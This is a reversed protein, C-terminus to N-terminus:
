RQQRRQKEKARYTKARAADHKRKRQLQPDDCGTVLRMRETTRAVHEGCQRRVPCTVCLSRNGEYPYGFCGPRHTGAPEVQPVTESQTAGRACALDIDMFLQNPLGAHTWKGNRVKRGIVARLFMDYPLGLADAIARVKWLCRLTQLGNRAYQEKVPKKHPGVEADIHQTYMERYVDIYSQNFLETRELPSLHQYGAWATAAAAPEAELADPRIWSRVWGDIAARREDQDPIGRARGLDLMRGRAEAQQKPSKERPRSTWKPAKSRAALEKRVMRALEDPCASQAWELLCQKSEPQRRRQRPRPRTDHSKTAEPTAPRTAAEVLQRGFRAEAEARPMFHGVHQRLAAAADGGAIAADAVRQHIVEYMAQHEPSGARRKHRFRRDWKGTNLPYKYRASPDNWLRVVLDLVDPGDIDALHPTRLTARHEAYQLAETAFFDYPVGHADLRARLKVVRDAFRRPDVRMRNPTLASGSEVRRAAVKLARAFELNRSAADMYAYRAFPKSEAAQTDTEKFPGAADQTLAAFTDGELLIELARSLTHGAAFSLDHTNM